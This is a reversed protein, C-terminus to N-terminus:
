NQTQAQDLAKKTNIQLYYQLECAISSRNGVEASVKVWDGKYKAVADILLEIETASWIKHKSLDLIELLDYDRHDPNARLGKVIENSYVSIQECTKSGGCIEKIRKFDRGVMRVANAFNDKDIQSWPETAKQLWHLLDYDYHYPHKKLKSILYHCYRTIQFRNKTLVREEIKTYNKGYMRVADAFDKM